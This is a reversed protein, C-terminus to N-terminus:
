PAAKNASRIMGLLDRAFTLAVINLILPSWVNSVLGMVVPAGSFTIPYCVVSAILWCPTLHLTLDYTIAFFAYFGCGFGILGLFLKLIPRFSGAQCLEM